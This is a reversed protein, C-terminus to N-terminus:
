PTATQAARCPHRQGARRERLEEARDLQDSPRGSRRLRGQGSHDRRRQLQRHLRRKPHVQRRHSTRLRHLRRHRPRHGAPDLRVAQHDAPQGQRGARGDGGPDLGLRQGLRHPRHLHAPGPDPRRERGPGQGQVYFTHRGDTLHATTKPPNCASYASSDLKCQFTSGPASSSFTFSPTPDNTVAVPGGTITTLPHDLPPSVAVGFRGGETAVTPPSKPSLKGGAGVDYQLVGDGDTVYVSQGDQDVAVGFPYSGAAVTAPSKPSVAGDPGVDYQSVTSASPNTVYVSKADPSVAIGWADAGAALKVPSKPWLKGGAGVDYQLIASSGASRAVVYVSQDDPSVALDTLAVEFLDEGTDLTAPNKPSLAGGAGVDFQRIFADADTGYVSQGDPSVAVATPNCCPLALAPSKPSLTGNANVSYQLLGGAGRFYGHDAVYASTGDPTVALDGPGSVSSDPSGAAVTTPSKPSLAGNSGVTYQSVTDDDANIVYVGQGDPSVVVGSAGGGAAVTAPSLPSLLGGPGVDYQSVSGSNSNTVYAFPAAQAPTTAATLLAAVAAATLFGRYANRRALPRLKRPM